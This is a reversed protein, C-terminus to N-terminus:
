SADFRLTVRRRALEGALARAFLAIGLLELTEEIANYVDAGLTREQTLAYASAGLMEIGIAGGVYLVGAIVFLARTPMQLRLVFPLYAAGLLAVAVLYPIVWAHYFAGSAQTAARLPLTLADHFGLMEDAALFFFIAALGTWHWRDREHAQRVHGAIAVLLVGCFALGLASAFTPINQEKWLDVMPALGLLYDLGAGYRLALMGLHLTLLLAVGGFFISSVGRPTVRLATASPPAEPAASVIRMRASAKRAPTPTM